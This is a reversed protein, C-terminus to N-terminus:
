DNFAHHEDEEEVGQRWPLTDISSTNLLRFPQRTSSFYCLQDM